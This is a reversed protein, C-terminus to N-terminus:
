YHESYGMRPKRAPVKETPYEVYEMLNQNLYNVIM